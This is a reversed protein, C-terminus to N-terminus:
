HELRLSEEGSKEIQKKNLMSQKGHFVYAMMKIECELETLCLFCIQKSAQCFTFCNSVADEERVIQHLTPAWRSFLKEETGGM